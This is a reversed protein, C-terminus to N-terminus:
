RITRGQPVHRGWVVETQLRARPQKEPLTGLLLRETVSSRPLSVSSLSPQPVPCLDSHGWGNAQRQLHVAGEARAAGGFSEEGSAGLM